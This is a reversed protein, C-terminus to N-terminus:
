EVIWYNFIYTKGDQLAQVGKLEFGEHNLSGFDAYINATVAEANGPTLQIRPKKGQTFAKTFKVGLVKGAALQLNDDVDDNNLDVFTHQNPNKDGDIDVTITITGATDNGEVKVDAFPGTGAEELIFTPAEGATAIHGNITLKENVVVEKVTLIGAVTVNGSVTLNSLSTAGRVNLSAFNATDGNQLGTNMVSSQTQLNTVKQNLEKIANVSAAIIPRDQLTLYGRSDVDVAEPVALRVNQATFGAYTNATELGSAANWKYLKPDLALIADLGRDFNGQLNKLREDSSATINGSADTTLTGAGYNNFRIAGTSSIRMREAGFQSGSTTTGFSIAGPVSNSGGVPAGDAVVQITGAVEFSNGDYGQAFLEYLSDGSQVATPSAITGRSRQSQWFPNLNDTNSATTVTMGNEGDASVHLKQSPNSTGIGVSGGQFVHFGTGTTTYTNNGNATNGLLIRTTSNDNDFFNFSNDAGKQIQWKNNGNDRLVFGSIQGVGGTGSDIRIVASAAANNDLDIDNGIITLKSTSPATGIGINGDNRVQLLTGTGAADTIKLAHATSDSTTGQVLLRIGTAPTVGLGLLGASDLTMNTVNSGTRFLLGSSGSRSIGVNGNFFSLIGSTGSVEGIILESGTNVVGNVSLTRTPATTGIGVRLNQVSGAGNSEGYVTLVNESDIKMSYGQALGGSSASTVQMDTFTVLGGDDPFIFGGDVSLAAGLQIQDSANVKFMNIGATGAANVGTIWQNNGLTLQGFSSTTGVSLTGTFIGTGVVHLKAAPAATGVGVNGISSTGNHALIVNGDTGSNVKTGGFVRVDGGNANGSTGAANGGQVSLVGGAFGTAGSGAAGAAISLDNGAANTSRTANLISRSAGRDLFSLSAGDLVFSTTSSNGLTIVNSNDNIINASSSNRIQNGNGALQINGQVSLKESPAAMGIGVNGNDAIVFSTVESSDRVTLQAALRDVSTDNANDSFATDVTLSTASAIATVTRTEGSVTIRDGVVLETTFLTSVGTVSTSATPDISGTIVSTASGKLRLSGDVDLRAVPSITGIGVNGTGNIRMRELANTSFNIINGASNWLGTDTDGEFSFAPASASNASLAYIRGSSSISAVRGNGSTLVALQPNLGSSDTNKLVIGTGTANAMDIQIGRYNAAATLTPNIYIGRTIGNAGGTQNITQNLTVGNYTATGSTPSFAAVVNLNNINGSTLTSTESITLLSDPSTTGIGVNGSLNFLPSNVLNQTSDFQALYGATGSGTITGVGGVGACNGSTLCVVGSADPLSYTRNATLTDSQLTSAFGSNNFFLNGSSNFGSLVTSSSNQFQLLNGTQSAAGRVKLLNQSAQTAHVVITGSAVAAPQIRLNGSDIVPDYTLEGYNGATNGITLTSGASGSNLILNRAGGTGNGIRLDGDSEFYSLITGSSDQLQLLDASQSTFGQVVLGLYNAAGTNVKVGSTNAPLSIRTKGGGSGRQITDTFVFGAGNIGATIAGNSGISAIIAGTSDQAELLNATQSAEGRIIQGIGSASATNVQLRAGVGSNLGIGVDGGTFYSLGSANLGITQTGGTLLDLRGTTSGGNHLVAVQTSGNMVAVGNNSLGTTDVTFRFAPATAGIGLNGAFYNQDTSSNYISYAGTPITTQGIVLNAQNTGTTEGIMIGANNTGATQPDVIIGSNTTLTGASRVASEVYLATGNTLTGGAVYVSASIGKATTTTGSSLNGAQFYGATSNTITGSSQNYVAGNVGIAGGITGSGKHGVSNYTGILSGFNRTNGTKIELENDIGYAQYTANAGPNLLLYNNIGSVYQKTTSITIEEEINLLTEFTSTPYLLTTDNVAAGGGLAMHGSIDTSGSVTLKDSTGTTGIGINGSNNHITSSVINQAADFQAIYGATGSGTITGVGGVGACNGITLCITGSADPITLTRNATLTTSQLTVSFGDNTGDLFSVKGLNSTSGVTLGSTGQLTLNSFTPSSSIAIGQITNVVGSSVSFNTSNFQAIGKQSTSADNLTITSGSGSANAVTLTGTLGNVSLVGNGGGSTLCTACTINGNADLSIPGSASVALTGSAGPVTIAVNSGPVATNLTITNANTSNQLVIKGNISSATGITLGASGTVTAGGNLMVTANFTTSGTASVVVVDGGNSQLQLLNGTSTNNLFISTDASNNAQASGPALLVGQGGGAVCSIGTTCITQSGPGTTPLIFSRGGATFTIFDSGANISVNQGSATQQLTNAFIIGTTNVAVNGNITLGSFQPTSTTAIGQITNIVGSSASFNTSNFQAIGKQSTTADNITITSGSGSANALTLAGSLTNFSVVGSGGVAFGCNTSGSLCVTGAEDPFLVSRNATPTVFGVTTTNSGSSARLTTAGNGQLTLSQSASGMTLAGTSTINGGINLNGSLGLNGFTPSASTHIDQPLSLTVVGTAGSVTIQNTTGALSLVGTNRLSNGSVALGSGLTIDGNVGGLSLLGDNNILGNNVVIGQGAQLQPIAALQAATALGCNNSSLCIVGSADPLTYTRNATPNGQVFTTSFAGNTFGLGGVLRISGNVLLTKNSSGGATNGLLQSAENLDQEPIVNQNATNVKATEANKRLQIWGMTAGVTLLIFLAPVLAVRLAATLKKQRTNIQPSLAPEGGTPTVTYPSVTQYATTAMPQSSTQVMTQTVPDELTELSDEEMATRASTLSPAQVPASPSTNSEPGVSVPPPAVPIAMSVPTNLDHIQGPTIVDNM